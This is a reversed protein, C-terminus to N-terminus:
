KKLVLADVIKFRGDVKRINDPKIDTLGRKRGFARLKKLMRPRLQDLAIRATGLPRLM